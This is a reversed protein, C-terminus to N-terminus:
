SNLRPAPISPADMDRDWPFSQDWTWVDVCLYAFISLWLRLVLQGTGTAVLLSKALFSTSLTIDIPGPLAVM